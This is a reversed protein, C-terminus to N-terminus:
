NQKTYLLVQPIFQVIRYITHQQIEIAHFNVCKEQLSINIQITYIDM